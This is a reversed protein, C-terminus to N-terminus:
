PDFVVKVWREDHKPLGLMAVVRSDLRALVFHVNTAHQGEELDTREM